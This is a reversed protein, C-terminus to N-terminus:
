QPVGRYHACRLCVAGIPIIAGNGGDMYLEQTRHGLVACALEELLALLDYWLNKM